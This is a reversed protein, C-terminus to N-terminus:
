GHSQGAGRIGVLAISRPAHAQRIRNLKVATETIAQDWSIREFRGDPKRKLPHELRQAHQVYNPIARAKNCTYGNTEDGRVAVLTNDKM